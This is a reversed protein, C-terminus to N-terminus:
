PIGVHHGDGTVLEVVELEGPAHDLADAEGGPGGPPQAEGVHHQPVALQAPGVELLGAEQAHADLPTPGPGGVRAGRKVQM